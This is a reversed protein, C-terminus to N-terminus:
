RHLLVPFDCFRLWYLQYALWSASWTSAALLDSTNGSPEAALWFIWNCSAWPPWTLPLCTSRGKECNKTHTYQVTFTLTLSFMVFAHAEQWLHTHQARFEKHMIIKPIHTFQTLLSNHTPQPNLITDEECGRYNYNATNLKFEELVCQLTTTLELFHLFLTKRM